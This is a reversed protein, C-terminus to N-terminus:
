TVEKMSLMELVHNGNELCSSFSSNALQIMSKNNKTIFNHDIEDDTQCKIQSVARWLVIM